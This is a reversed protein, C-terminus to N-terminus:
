DLGRGSLGLVHAPPADPEQEAASEAVLIREIVKNAQQCRRAAYVALAVALVVVITTWWM